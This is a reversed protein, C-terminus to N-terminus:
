ESKDYCTGGFLSLLSITAIQVDSNKIGIPAKRMSKVVRFKLRNKAHFATPKTLRYIFTLITKLIGNM